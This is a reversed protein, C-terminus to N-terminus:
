GCLVAADPKKPGQVRSDTVAICVYQAIRTDGSAAPRRSTGEENSTAITIAGGEPMANRAGLVLDILASEAQGADCVTEWLGASLSVDIKIPDRLAVQLVDRLDGILQNFSLPKPALPRPRAVAVLRQNLAAAKHASKAASTIFKETEGTRAGAILKRTLELSAIINQMLNNFEHGLGAMLQGVLEM